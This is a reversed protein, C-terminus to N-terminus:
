NATIIGLLKGTPDRVVALARQTSGPPQFEETATAITHGSPDTFRFRRGSQRVRGLWKGVESRRDYGEAAPVLQEILNGKVTRYFLRRASQAEAGHALLMVILAAAVGVIIQRWRM